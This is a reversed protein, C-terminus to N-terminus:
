EGEGYEGPYVEEPTAGEPLSHEAAVDAPLRRGVYKRTERGSRLHGKKDRRPSKYPVYTVLYWYPGHNRSIAGDENRRRCAKCQGGCNTMVAELYSHREPHAVAEEVEAERQKRRAEAARKKEALQGARRSLRELEDASMDKMMEM